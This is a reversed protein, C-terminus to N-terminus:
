KLYTRYISVTWGSIHPADMSQFHDCPIMDNPATLPTSTLDHLRAKDYWVEDAFCCLSPNCRGRGISTGNCVRLGDGVM